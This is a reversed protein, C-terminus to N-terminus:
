PLDLRGDPKNKGTLQGLVSYRFACLRHSLECTRLAKNLTSQFGIPPKLHFLNPKTDKNKIIVTYKHKLIKQIQSNRKVYISAKTFAEKSTSTISTIKNM